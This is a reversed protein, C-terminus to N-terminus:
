LALLAPLQHQTKVIGAATRQTKVIGATEHQIETVTVTLTEQLMIAEDVLV